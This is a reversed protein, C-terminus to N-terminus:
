AIMIRVIFAYRYTNSGLMKLNHLYEVKYQAFLLYIIYICYGFPSIYVFCGHSFLYNYIDIVLIPWEFRIWKLKIVLTGLGDHSHTFYYTFSMKCYYLRECLWESGWISLKADDWQWFFGEILMVGSNNEFQEFL